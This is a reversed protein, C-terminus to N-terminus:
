ILKKRKNSIYDVLMYQGLTDSNTFFVRGKNIKALKTIFANLFFSEGLMFTNIVIGQRTCKKVERLTLQITRMSPPYQFFMQGEEIHATPEGDTVIIIQKNDCKGRDLLKRALHLGHQINTYPDFEDWGMYPLDKAKFERAYSSFGLIRLNDRPYQSRILGDLAIAVQKAAQFNGRMPMSLSLDLLLVTASRILQESKYVEFDDPELKIPPSQAQRHLANMITKELHLQFNDGFEYIRTEDIKEGIAGQKHISHGGLSDKKLQTFVDRLAKQGIKRMGRPTLEYGRGKQRIYGADELVKSINRLKELEETAEDGMLEKVMGENITDLSRSFQAERLQDDLNDMKQLMEMLRLAENYSISEEGSFPYSKRLKDIPLLSEMFASMKQMELRTAEDLAASLLNELAERDEPSLSDLLSQTQAIQSQMREILEDLNQPPNPGFFHGFQKMFTNFDPEQGRMRQELMQNIAEVLNRISALTDSDMDKIQQMLDRTYSSVAHKKLMEILEQFEHRAGGDMFDYDTLGKIIGGIDAPLNDLKATNQAALDRIKNLLKEGIEPTLEGTEKGTKQVAEDLKKQIGQREKGIISDLKKRIEDLVSGLNYKDLQSQKIQKLKQLLNRLGPLHRGQSDRFGYHQMRWLIYSLNGDQMLNRSVEDMLAEEDLDLIEQTGDWESYRFMLM